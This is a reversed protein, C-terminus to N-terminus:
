IGREAPRALEPSSATWGTTGAELEVASFIRRIRRRTASIVRGPSLAYRLVVAFVDRLGWAGDLRQGITGLGRRHLDWFEPERRRLWAEALFRAYLRQHQKSYWSYEHAALYVPGFLTLSITRALLMPGFAAMRGSISDSEVRSFSLVQHVFGFDVDKLVEFVADTDAVLRDEQFLRERQRVLDARMMVTTASGFASYEGMLCGRCVERGSMVTREIPIGSPVLSSGLIRYSSVIGVTPNAEALATMEELCRPFIADDAQVMKVYKSEPSILRLARNYNQLQTLFQDTHFIKIRHDRKAFDDVIAVSRDTSCNDVLIYEFNDYSQNLVSSICQPLHADSNFFPTVVSVLPRSAHVARSWGGSELTESM